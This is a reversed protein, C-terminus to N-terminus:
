LQAPLLVIETADLFLYVLSSANFFSELDAIFQNLFLLMVAFGSFDWNISICYDIDVVVFNFRLIPHSKLTNSNVIM